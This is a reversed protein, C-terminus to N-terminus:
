NEQAHSDLDNGLLMMKINKFLMTILINGSFLSLNTGFPMNTPDYIPCELTATNQNKEIEQSSWIFEISGLLKTSKELFFM